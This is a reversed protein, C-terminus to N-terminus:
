RQRQSQGADAGHWCALGVICRPNQPLGELGDAEESDLRADCRAVEVLILDIAEPAPCVVMEAEEIEYAVRLPSLLLCGLLLM